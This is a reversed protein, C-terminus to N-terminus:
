RSVAAAKTPPGRWELLKGRSLYARPEDRLKGGFVSKGPDLGRAEIGAVDLLSHAFHAVTLPAGRARRAAEVKEPVAAALEDSWWVFAAAPMDYENGIAHGFLRREDDLLNEGHDSVFMVAARVRLARVAEIVDSLIRDTYLVSNDYTNSIYEAHTAVKEPFVRYEAPYRTSFEFHSGRTHLVVLIRRPRDPDALVRGLDEVLARDLSRDYYRRRHAEEAVVPIIGGWHSVEQASLWWTQFGAERFAGIISKQSQVAPWDSIPALSLLSPVAFATTPSTTVVDTFSVLNATKGLRPTTERRYGNLSWRDPRSSEGIALVYVEPADGPAKTAGFSFSRRVELFKDTEALLALTVGLQSLAGVPSSYDHSAVDLVARSVNMGHTRMQRAVATGYGLVLLSVGAWRAWAPWRVQVRRIGWTGLGWTAVLLAVGIAVPRAYAHLFEGTESHDTVIISLYSTTLRSGFQFILFLDMAVAFYLPALLLHLWVPRRFFAHLTAVWLASMGMSWLLATDVIRGGGGLVLRYVVPPSLLVAVLLALWAAGAWTAQVRGAGRERPVEGAALETAGDM